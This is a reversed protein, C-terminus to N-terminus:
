GLPIAPPIAAARTFALSGSDRPTAITRTHPAPGSSRVTSLWWRWGPRAAAVGLQQSGDALLLQVRQRHQVPPVSGPQPEPQGAPASVRVRHVRRDLVREHGHPAAGTAVPWMPLVSPGPDPRDRDALEY